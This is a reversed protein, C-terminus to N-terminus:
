RTLEREDRERDLPFTVSVITGGESRRRMLFEGRLERAVLGKVLRLGLGTSTAPPAMTAVGGEEEGDASGATGDDLIELVVNRKQNLEAQITLTGRAGLGHVIANYCVEHIIMALSVAQSTKLWIEKKGLERVIAVGPPKVVALSPIVQEVLKGLSVAAIGGSFLEHARAINGIREIVRDMWQRVNQPMEMNASMSLLGVIGALNNKVRHNLERLLMSRSEADQRIRENLHAHEIAASARSALVRALDLQDGTFPGQNSSLLLLCGIPRGDSHTMPICALGALWPEVLEGLGARRIEHPEFVAISDPRSLRVIQEGTFRMRRSFFRVGLDGTAAVIELESEEKTRLAVACAEIGLSKPSHQAIHALTGEVSGAQFIEGLLTLMMERRVALKRQV